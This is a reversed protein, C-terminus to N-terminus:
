VGSVRDNERDMTFIPGKHGNSELEDKNKSNSDCETSAEGPSNSSSPGNMDLYIHYDSRRGTKLCICKM